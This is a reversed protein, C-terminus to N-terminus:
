VFIAKLFSSIPASEMKETTETKKEKTEIQLNPAKVTLFSMPNLPIDISDPKSNTKQPVISEKCDYPPTLTISKGSTYIINISRQKCANKIHEFHSDLWYLCCQRRRYSERPIKIDLLMSFFKAFSYVQMHSAKKVGAIVAIWAASPSQQQVFGEKKIKKLHRKELETESRSLGRKKARGETIPVGRQDCRCFENGDVIYAGIMYKQTLFKCACIIQSLIMNPKENRTRKLQQNPIFFNNFFFIRHFLIILFSVM